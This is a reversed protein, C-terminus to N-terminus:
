SAIRNIPDGHHAAFLRQGRICEIQHHQIKAQRAPHASHEAVIADPHCRCRHDNKGRTIGNGVANLAEVAARIIIQDFGEVEILQRCAGPM